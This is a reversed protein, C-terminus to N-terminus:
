TGTRVPFFAVTNPLDTDLAALGCNALKKGSPIVDVIDPAPVLPDNVEAVQVDMAQFPVVYQATAVPEAIAAVDGSPIVQVCRTSGTLVEQCDIAQFPVTNQATPYLEDIAAVEGSPIM